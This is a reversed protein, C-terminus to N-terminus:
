GRREVIPLGRGDYEMYWRRQQETWGEPLVSSFEWLHPGSGNAPRFGRYEATITGINPYVVHYIKGVVPRMIRVIPQTPQKMVFTKM